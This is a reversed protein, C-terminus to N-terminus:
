RFKMPFFHSNLLSFFGSNRESKIVDAILLEIIYIYTAKCISLLLRNGDPSPGM